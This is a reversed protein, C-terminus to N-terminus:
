ETAGFNFATSLQLTPVHILRDAIVFNHSYDARFSLWSSSFLRAGLGLNVAPKFGTNLKLATGGVWFAGSFHLVKSNLWATKGYMPSWVLDSGAMWEVVEFQTPRVGFNRELEERLGTVLMHSWSARGVRWAFADNFHFSYGVNATVGKYYADLPLLGVGLELEHNMRYLREQVASVRGPNELEAFQAHVVGPLLLLAWM